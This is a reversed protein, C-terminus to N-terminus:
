RIAGENILQQVMSVDPTIAIGTVTGGAGLVSTAGNPDCVTTGEPLPQRTLSDVVQMGEFLSIVQGAGDLLYVLTCGDAYREEAIARSQDAHRQQQQQLTFERANESDAARIESRTARAQSSFAQTIGFGFLGIIIVGLAGFKLRSIMDESVGFGPAPPPANDFDDFNLKM